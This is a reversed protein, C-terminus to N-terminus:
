RDFGISGRKPAYLLQLDLYYKDFEKKSIAEVNLLWQLNHFQTQYSLNPDLSLYKEQLYNDREDFLTTIFQNTVNENPIKKFLYIHGNNRTRIKWSNENMLFYLILLIVATFAAGIWIDPDSDKENRVNFLIGSVGFTLLSIILIISNTSKYSTKERSLNEFSVMGETESGFYSTKYHLKNDLINYEKKIFLRRQKITQM